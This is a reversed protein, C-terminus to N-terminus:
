ALSDLVLCYDCIFVSGRREALSCRLGRWWNKPDEPITHTSISARPAPFGYPWPNSRKPASRFVQCSKAIACVSSPQLILVSKGSSRGSAVTRPTNPSGFARITAAPAAAFFVAHPTHPRTASAAEVVPVRRRTRSRDHPADASRGRTPPEGHPTGSNRRPSARATPNAPRCDAEVGLPKGEEHPPAAPARVILSTASSSCRSQSVTLSSSFCYM